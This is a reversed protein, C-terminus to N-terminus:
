NNKAVRSAIQHEIATPRNLIYSRVFLFDNPNLIAPIISSGSLKNTFFKMVRAYIYRPPYSNSPCFSCSTLSFLHQFVFGNYLLMLKISRQEENFASLTSSYCIARMLATDIINNFVHRTHDSRFPVIYPETADKRYASTALVGNKNEIFVDLFPVSKGLQRVLKINPHLSNAQDLM